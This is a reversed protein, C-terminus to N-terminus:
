LRLKYFILALLASDRRRGWATTLRETEGKTERGKQRNTFYWPESDSYSYKCTKLCFDCGMCTGWIDISIVQHESHNRASRAFATRLSNTCMSLTLRWASNWELHSWAFTVASIRSRNTFLGSTNISIDKPNLSSPVFNASSIRKIKTFLKWTLWYISKSVSHRLACRAYFTEGRRMFRKSTCRCVFNIKLLSRVCIVFIIRSDGGKKCSVMSQMSTCDFGSSERSSAPAFPVNYTAGTTTSANRTSTWHCSAQTVGQASPANLCRRRTTKPRRPPQRLNQSRKWWRSRSRPNNLHLGEPKESNSLSLRVRTLFCYAVWGLFLSLPAPM